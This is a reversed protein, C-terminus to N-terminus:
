IRAPHRPSPLKAFNEILIASWTEFNAGGTHLDHLEAPSVLRGELVERERIDVFGRVTVMQVLGLHVSGVPNSDDNLLGVEGIEYSGRVHIEEAIERRTAAPIPNRRGAGSAAEVDGPNIHGGIGISLKDRLREEGGRALRRTLLIEEGVRILSYPIIQKWAPQGEAAEREVFFGHERVAADFREKAVSPAEGGFLVLGQPTRDPFLRERPVVYVFEM